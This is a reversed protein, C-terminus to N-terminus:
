STCLTVINLLPNFTRPANIARHMAAVIAPQPPLLLLLEEAVPPVPWPDVLRVAASLLKGFSMFGYEGVTSL